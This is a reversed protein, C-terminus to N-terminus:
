STRHKICSALLALITVTCAGGGAWLGLSKLARYKEQKNWTKPSWSMNNKKLIKRLNLFEKTGLYIFLVTGGALTIACCATSIDLAIDGVLPQINHIYNPNYKEEFNEINYGTTPDIPTTDDHKDLSESSDSEKMGYITQTGCIHASCMLLIILALKKM